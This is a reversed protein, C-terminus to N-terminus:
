LREVIRALGGLVLVGSLAAVVLVALAGSLAVVGALVGVVILALQPGSARSFGRTMPVSVALAAACAESLVLPLVPDGGLTVVTCVVGACPTVGARVALLWAGLVLNLVLVTWLAGVVPTSLHAPVSGWPRTQRRVFEGLVDTRVDQAPVGDLPPLALRALAPEAVPSAHM